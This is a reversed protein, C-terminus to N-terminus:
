IVSELTKELELALGDWTYKQATRWAERGLKSAYGGDELLHRIMAAVKHPEPQVAVLNVGDRTLDRSVSEIGTVIPKGCAMYELIKSPIARTCGLPGICIDSAVLYNVVGERLIQGHVETNPPLSGKLSSPLEDGMLILHVDPLTSVAKLLVDIRYEPGSFRGVFFAIKRDPPIGLRKRAAERDIGQFEGHDVGNYHIHVNKCPGIRSELAELNETCVVLFADAMRVSAELLRNRVRQLLSPKGVGMDRQIDEARAVVPIKLLRGLLLGIHFTFHHPQFHCLIVDSDRGVALAKVFVFLPTTFAAISQPIKFRPTKCLVARNTKVVDSVVEDTLAVKYKINPVVLTCNNRQALRKSLNYTSWTAAGVRPFYWFALHLIKMM